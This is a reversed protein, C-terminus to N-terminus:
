SSYQIQRPPLPNIKKVASWIISHNAGKVLITNIICKCDLNKRKGVRGQLLYALIALINLFFVAPVDSGLHSFPYEMGHLLEEATFM